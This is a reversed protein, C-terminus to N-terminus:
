NKNSSSMKEHLMRILSEYQYYMIKKDQELKKIKAEQKHTKIRLSEVEKEMQEMDATTNATNITTGDLENWARKLISSVFIDLQTDLELPSLTDPNILKVGPETQTSTSEFTGEKKTNQKQDQPVKFIKRFDKDLACLSKVVDKLPLTDNKSPLPTVPSVTVATPSCQVQSDQKIIHDTETSADSKV